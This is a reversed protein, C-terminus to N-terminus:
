VEKWNQKYDLTGFGEAEGKVLYQVDAPERELLSVGFADIAIPDTGAALTNRIAVDKPSGGTPGNRMLVRTGDLILLPSFPKMMRWLDCIVEHLDQHFRSRNGGLLGYWNKMTLSASCLNHDKVAAIGIVSDVTKFPELFVPWGPIAKADPIEVMSFGREYPIVVRGGAAAVKRRIGTRDFVLEPAAIPNDTVLVDTAGARCAEKVVEAILVPNAIAGTAPHTAFAANPKILVRDGKKVFREMGGLPALVAALMTQMVESSAAATRGSEIAKDRTVALSPFIGEDTRAFRQTIADFSVAKPPRPRKWRRYGWIGVSTGVGAVLASRVLRILVHRRRMEQREMADVM